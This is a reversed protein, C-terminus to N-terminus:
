EVREVSALPIWGCPDLAVGSKWAGLIQNLGELDESLLTPDPDDSSEIILEEEYAVATLYFIDGRHTYDRILITYLVSV